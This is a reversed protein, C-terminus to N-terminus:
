RKERLYLKPFPILGVNKFGVNIPAMIHYIEKVTYVIRPSDKQYRAEGDIKGKTYLDGM